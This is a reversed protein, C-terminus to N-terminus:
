RGGTETQIPEVPTTDAQGTGMPLTELPATGSGSDYSFGLGDDDVSFVEDSSPVDVEVDSGLDYLELTMAITEAGVELADYAIRRVFGDADIWVDVALSAPADKAMREYLKRTEADGASAVVEAVSITGHYRTTDAGRVSEQEVEQFDAQAGALFALAGTPTLQEFVLAPDDDEQASGPDLRIWEKGEMLEEDTAEEPLGIYFTHRDVVFRSTTGEDEANPPVTMTASSREGDFVGEATADGRDTGTGTGTFSFRGGTSATKEAAQIVAEQPTSGAPTEGATGCGAAFAVSAILLASRRM